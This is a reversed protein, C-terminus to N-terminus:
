RSERSVVVGDIVVGTCHTTYEFPDGDWVALDADKGVELSGVRDEVGLLRAADITLAQLAREAALGYAVAVGAEFLVVRVKPVYSEFGSQFLFPIGAEDLRAATAFSANELSGTPRAMPPHVIVPVAAARVEELLMGVDAAGELWIRLGFEDAVRLASAIDQARQAYVLLPLRGELVAILAEQDLDRATEVEDSAATQRKELKARADLLSQRLLAVAKARTGPSKGEGKLASPDFTAAIAVPERLLAEEVTDGVTKVVMTQGSVVEGPAHGTHVTTIGFSRLWAVLPDLPNYADVARLGPQIPETHDLQDQDQPQNLMGTLGVTSRADILGPTVVVGQVIEVGAPIAIEAARGVAVIRGQEILVVGDDLADGAMTHVIRGRVALDVALAQGTALCAALLWFLSAVRGGRRCTTSM